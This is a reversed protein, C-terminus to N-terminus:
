RENLQDNTILFHESFHFIVNERNKFINMDM